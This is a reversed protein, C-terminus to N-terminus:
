HLQDFKPSLLMSEKNFGQSTVKFPFLSQFFFLLFLLAILFTRKRTKVIKFFEQSNGPFFKGIGLKEWEWPFFIQTPFRFGQSPTIIIKNKQTKPCFNSKPSLTSVYSRVYSDSVKSIDCLTFNSVQDMVPTTTSLFHAM